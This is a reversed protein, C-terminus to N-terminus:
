QLIYARHCINRLIHGLYVLILAKNGEQKAEEWFTLKFGTSKYSINLFSLSSEFSFKMQKAATSNCIREQGQPLLSEGSSPKDSDIESNLPFTLM